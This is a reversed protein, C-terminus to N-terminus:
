GVVPKIKKLELPNFDSYWEGYPRNRTDDLDMILRYGQALLRFFRDEGREFLRQLAWLYYDIVQLGSYQSPYAPIVITKSESSIGTKREFNLKARRIAKELAYQRIAKGRRAFVIRNKEATHLSTKFLRKILDDYVDNPSLKSQRNHLLRASKVLYEKRRIAVLVKAGFQPLVKFVERRVEALDDNAHFCLVTKKGQSQMSPVDKFYPDALLEERLHELKQHALQPNPLYAVGVMFLRSVGANGVIIHGRKNFLTLDGAEDVYYHNVPRIEAM